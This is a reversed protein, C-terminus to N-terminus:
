ALYTKMEEMIAKTQDKVEAVRKSSLELLRASEANELDIETQQGLGYGMSNVLLNAFHVVLLENAVPDAEELHDHHMAVQVFPDAFKWKKLLAGGFKGHHTDITDFLDERSINEGLKKKMQLEAIVQLLLLKGIDHLLGLTFSDELLKLKLLQSIIQSAYACSLSHEWLNEILERFNKNKSVYLAKNCIIEVYQKTTNLGLRGVAQRLTKNKAVGRYYASNSVSILKSSIAADQQLLYAVQQLDAGKSALERFKVAIQPHSPLDVEGRKFVFSIKDLIETQIEPSSRQVDQKDTARVHKELEAVRKKLTIITNNTEQQKNFADIAAKTAINLVQYYDGAKAVYYNCVGARMAEIAGKVNDPPTLMLVPLRYKKLIKVLRDQGHQEVFSQDIILLSSEEIHDVLEKPAEIIFVSFEDDLAETIKRVEDRNITVIFVPKM